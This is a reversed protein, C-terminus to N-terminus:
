KAAAVPTAGTSNPLPIDDVVLSSYMKKDLGDTLRFLSLLFFSLFGNVHTTMEM